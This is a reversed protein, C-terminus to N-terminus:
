AHSEKGPWSWMVVGRFVSTAQRWLPVVTAACQMM